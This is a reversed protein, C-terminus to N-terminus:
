CVRLESATMSPIQWAEPVDSPVIAPMESPTPRRFQKPDALREAKLFQEEVHKPVPRVSALPVEGARLAILIHTTLCMGLSELAEHITGGQGVVDHELCRAVWTDDSKKLLVRLNISAM